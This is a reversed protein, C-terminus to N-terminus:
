KNLFIESQVVEHILDRILFDNARTRNLISEIHQRDAFQIEGGTSYVVLQSLLNRAVQEKHEVLHQKFQKIGLFEKGDTTVGSSDVAPGRNLAFLDAFGGFAQNKGSKRYHTRFGGIPDFSELAFGPPDIERHCQNCSEIDRHAALIERITTQGRTDPEISGVAPPPAPPPTGLFNTLVFNGRMVPSTTTGNASTKLIAAQTLVGGRISDEPLEVKRFDMGEVGRIRYHEALRRNVFTFDSDILNAASLNEDVLNAFFMQTETPISNSLLEDFEPYLDADPTTANVKYLRLWQGVFDRTFRKSKSDALMREVQDFLVKPDTLTGKEASSVLERDPISKWLFYSLRNALAYDDLRGPEGGFLLFQPSSLISRLPIRLAEVVDRGETIAPKALSIFSEIEEKDVHRRFAKPAFDAVIQAVHEMPSQSWNAEFPGNSANGNSRLEIGSLLQHTSPPPWSENLPGEVTQSIIALGTGKYNKAGGAFYVGYQSSSIDLTLYPTDGPTLMTDVVITVPEGPELDQAKVLRANGTQNKVIIKATVPTKSQYAAVQATLRHMGSASPRFQFHTLYDIDAFLVIGDSDKLKRTVSGGLNLPKEHWQELHDYNTHSVQYPNPELRIAQQLAQDAASLYSKMHVASIRQTAGVTDFSGSEVEDPIESTVDSEILLLDRLTYDLERKTLRRAPVRGISQQTALSQARLSLKLAELAIRQQAPDPRVESEPPMDGNNVRDFVKEWQRFNDQDSLDQSLAELNLGSTTDSDHCHICSTELLQAVEAEFSSTNALGLSPM